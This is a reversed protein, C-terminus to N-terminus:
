YIYQNGRKVWCKAKEMDINEKVKEPMEITYLFKIIDVNSRPVIKLCCDLHLNYFDVFILQDEEGVTKYNEGEM